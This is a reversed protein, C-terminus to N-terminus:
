NQRRSELLQKVKAPTAPLDVVRVKVADYIANCVAPAVPTVPLEAMGKAGWPGQPDEKEVVICEIAPLMEIKPVKLKRLNDSVPWGQEVRYEECLAYGLGMLIGGEMQGEINQKHLARGADHAAIYKLVKTVGTEEDVEVVAAHAGFCYAYHLKNIGPDNPYAAAHEPIPDTQPARYQHEVRIKEGRGALEGALEALTLLGQGAQSRFVGAELVIDALDRNLMTAAQRCLEKKLLQAAEYVANGSLFVMRSSTTVGADPTEHTDSAQVRINQYPIGATAAAIQALTTDIGQGSDVAGVKLEVVGGPKLILYAGAAEPRGTGLGVNKYAGAIGVGVKKRGAAPPLEETALAKRIAALCEKFGIGGGLVHGTITAKGEALANLERITIPDLRLKRALADLQQEAAFAVQPGGFGRMAGAPQNNTYIALVEVKVHPIEYPGACFSAARVAVPGGVSAYAGTDLYVRAEFACLKGDRTAGTKCHVYSAHRKTSMRISEERTLVMKVPRGTKWAGLACHIQVTPEERGGFAGGTTTLSVRVKEEPLGLTAAIQARYAYSSQSPTFVHILGNAAPVALAAEPELYAHEVFPTHYTGELIVESAKFGEALNGKHVQVHNLINGKDHLLPAEPALADQPKFLGPLEEYQVAVEAAARAAAEESEALVLALPEGTFRVKDFALVPQHQLLLGFTKRGPIDEHTLVDVVGPLAKAAATEIRLVRAHAVASLVLKGYLLHEAQLDAAYLPEGKAKTLVDKRLVSVGITSPSQEAPLELQLGGRLAKAALQVAEVIKVYGTCRCLNNQLAHKIEDLGPKKNKDLLAKAAMIMGPTCFGCQIAGGAIFAAQVPHLKGDQSLNEITEVQCGELMPLKLLCSRQAEGDVIVTCTGCHGRGCGNKAGLLGLEARLFQLLSTYKTAEVQRTQGNVKFTIINSKMTDLVELIKNKEM